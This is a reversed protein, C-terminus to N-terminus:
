VCGQQFPKHGKAFPVPISNLCVRTSLTNQGQHFPEAIKSLLQSQTHTGFTHMQLTTLPGKELSPMGWFPQHNTTNPPNTTQPDLMDGGLMTLNVQKNQQWTKELAVLEVELLFVRANARSLLPNAKLRTLLPGVPGRASLPLHVGVM